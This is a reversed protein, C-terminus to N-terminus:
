ELKKEIKELPLVCNPQTPYYLNDSKREMMKSNGYVVLMFHSSKEFQKFATLADKYFGFEKKM